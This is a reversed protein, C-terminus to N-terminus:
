KEEERLSNKIKKEEEEALKKEEENGFKEVVAKWYSLHEEIWKKDAIGELSIINDISDFVKIKKAKENLSVRMIYSEKTEGKRKSLKDVIERVEKGFEKEIDELEFETDEVVDHLLASVITEIDEEMLNNAVRIPHIIYPKGNKRKQSAHAKTAFDLAKLITRRENIKRDIISSLLKAKQAYLNHFENEEKAYEMIFMSLM